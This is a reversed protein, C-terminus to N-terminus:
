NVVMLFFACSVLLRYYLLDSPPPCDRGYISLCWCRGIDVIGCLTFEQCDFRAVAEARVVDLCYLDVLGFAVCIDACMDTSQSHDVGVVRAAYRPAEVFHLADVINEIRRLAFQPEGREVSYPEILFGVVAGSFYDVGWAAGGVEKAVALSPYPDSTLVTHSYVGLFAVAQYLGRDGPLYQKRWERLGWRCSIPWWLSRVPM